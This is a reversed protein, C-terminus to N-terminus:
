GQRLAVVPDVRLARRAPIWCATLSSVLLLLAAAAYTLPDGASVGFLYTRLLHGAVVAGLLGIVIGIVGLRLGASLVMRLVSTRTAGLAVRVGIERTRQAVGAAVVGYLGLVALVAASVGFFAVLQLLFRRAAISREILSEVTRIKWVPQDSDVAWLARRVAGAIALPSGGTRVALTNFVGPNQDQLTYITGSDANALDRHHVDGVVGVVTATIAGDDFTLLRGLATGDPWAREALARSVVVVPAQEGGPQFLRGALLPIRMTRFYSASVTNFASERPAEEQELRYEATSGNGSFPLARVGAAAVVGPVAEVREIVQRHFQAQAEPSPYKNIPLRYEMTLLNSPDFGVDVATLRDFSRMTLGAAVLLVAALAIQGVVLVGRFRSTRVDDTARGAGTGSLAGARAWQLAPPLGAAVGALVAALVGLVLLGPRLRANELGYVGSPANAVLVGIATHAAALGLAAGALARAVSEM